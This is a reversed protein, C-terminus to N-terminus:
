SYRLEHDINMTRRGKNDFWEIPTGDPDMSLDDGLSRPISREGKMGTNIRELWLGLNDGQLSVRWLEELLFNKSRWIGGGGAFAAQRSLQFHTTDKQLNMTM